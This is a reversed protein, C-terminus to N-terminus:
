VIEASAIRDEISGKGVVDGHGEASAYDVHYAEPLIQHGIEAVGAEADFMCGQALETQETLM